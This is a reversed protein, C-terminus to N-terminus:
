KLLPPSSRLQFAPNSPRGALSAAFDSPAVPPGLFNGQALACGQDLLFRSQEQSEVGEAVPTLGLTRALQIIATMMRTAEEDQPIDRLFSLDIKLLDVQLRRLRGLSSYGTGFDDIALVLGLDSLAQLAAETRAPDAMATSETIEVIVRHPDVGELRLCAVIEDALAPNWLQRPSLNFSVALQLGEEQWARVQRCVERIVWEGIRQVLGLEEALPIFEKPYMLTGDPQPWRILAEAGITSGSALDVIPQYHLVWPDHQTAWRLRPVLSLRHRDGLSREAYLVLQGKGSEKSRYMAADANRLLTRADTADLPYISGGVSASAVFETDSLRFPIQFQDQIRSAVEEAAQVAGWFSDAQGFPLDALLILFEDGGQRAVLDTERAVRTLRTATQAILDDGAAHGLRDNVLKLNDLDLYLVAVAGNARRARALAEDVHEEFLARNALGTLKDHYALFAIEDDARKEETIDRAITSAGVVAGGSDQIPSVTFSVDILTGDKRRAITEFHDQDGIVPRGSSKATDGLGGAPALMSESRGVVEWSSYGYMREAGRNWTEIVGDLSKGIIADGSSEVIAALRHLAEERRRQETVDRYTGLVYSKGDLCIVEASLQEFRTKGSKTRLEFEFDSVAGQSKLATALEKRRAPEVWLGLDSVTRGVVEARSYGTVHLFTENVEVLFGDDLGVITIMDPSADFALYALRAAQDSSLPEPVLTLVPDHSKPADHM